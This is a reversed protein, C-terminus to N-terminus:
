QDLSTNPTNSTFENRNPLTLSKRNENKVPINGAINFCLKKSDYIIFYLSIYYQSYLKKSIIPLICKVYTSLLMEKM